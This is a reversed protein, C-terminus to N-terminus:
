TSSVRCSKSEPWSRKSYSDLKTLDTGNIIFQIDANQNGGGGINAIPQV